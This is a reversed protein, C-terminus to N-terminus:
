LALNDAVRNETTNAIKPAAPKYKPVPEGRGLAERVCVVCEYVAEELENAADAYNGVFGHLSNEYRTVSVQVGQKRLENAYRNFDFIFSFLFNFDAFAPYEEADNMLPDHGATLIKTPPLSALSSTHLPSAYAGDRDSEERFIRNLVWEMM